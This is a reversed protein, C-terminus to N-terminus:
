FPPWGLSFLCRRGMLHSQGWQAAVRSSVLTIDQTPQVSEFLKQLGVHVTNEVHVQFEDVPMCTANVSSHM